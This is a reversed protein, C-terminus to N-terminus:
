QRASQRMLSTALAQARQVHPCWTQELFEIETVGVAAEALTKGGDGLDVDQQDVVKGDRRDSRPFAVIQELQEIIAGASASADHGALQGDAVPMVVNAIGREGVGDEIAENM